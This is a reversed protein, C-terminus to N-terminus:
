SKLSKSFQLLEKHSKYLNLKDEEGELLEALNIEIDTTNIEGNELQELVGNKLATNYWLTNKQHTFHILEKATYNKFKSVVENLLNVEDDNFEDDSFGTKPVICFHDKVLKKQIYDALLHPEDTLEVYLDPSVSEQKWVNFKLNLFPFGFRKISIEEIIYILQLLGIKSAPQIHQSLFILTNGLKDIQNRTYTYTEAVQM